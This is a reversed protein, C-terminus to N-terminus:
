YDETRVTLLVYTSSYVRWISENASHLSCILLFSAINKIQGQTMELGNGM